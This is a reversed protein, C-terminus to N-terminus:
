REPHMVVFVQGCVTEFASINRFGILNMCEAWGYMNSVSILGFLERYPMNTISGSLCVFIFHILSILFEFVVSLPSVPLHPHLPM